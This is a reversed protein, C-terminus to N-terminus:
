RTYLGPCDEVPQFADFGRPIEEDPGLFLFGDDVLHSALNAVVRPQVDWDLSNILNRCLIIDFQGLASSSELLNAYQFRIMSKIDDRIIWRAGQQRFYKLLRQVPLGQQVDHQSFEGKRAIELNVNSLDTAVIEIKKVKGLLDPNDALYMALSYPEQGTCCGAVWIRLTQTGRRPRFLAPLAHDRMANFLDQDCVFSTERNLMVEIVDKILGPEAIGRLALTMTTVSPYGWKGAIPSLRSDLLYCKDPTIRLGSKEKLLDKYLDFDSFRM